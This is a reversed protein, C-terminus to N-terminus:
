VHPLSIFYSHPLDRDGKHMRIAFNRILHMLALDYQCDSQHLEELLGYYLWLGLLCNVRFDEVQFM